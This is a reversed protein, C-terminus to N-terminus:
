SRKLRDALARVRGAVADLDAGSSGRAPVIEVVSGDGARTVRLVVDASVGEPSGADTARLTLAGPDADAVSWGLDELARRSREFAQAPPLDVAVPVAGRAASAADRPRYPGGPAPPPAAVGAEGRDLVVRRAESGQLGLVLGIALVLSAGGAVGALARGGRDGSGRTTLLGVAGLTTALISGGLGVVLMGRALLAPILGATAGLLAVGVLLLSGACAAAAGLATRSTERLPSGDRAGETSREM